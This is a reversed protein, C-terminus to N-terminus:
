WALSEIKIIGLFHTKCSQNVNTNDIEMQRENTHLACCILKTANQTWEISLCMLGHYLVSLGNYHLEVIVM